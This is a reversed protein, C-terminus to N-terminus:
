KDLSERKKEEIGLDIEKFNKIQNQLGDIRDKFKILRTRLEDTDKKRAIREANLGSELKKIEKNRYIIEKLLNSYFLAETKLRRKVFKKDDEIAIFYELAKKYNRQQNEPHIYLLGLQFLAKNELSKPLSKPFLSLAKETEDISAKYDGKEMLKAANALYKERQGAKNPYFSSFLACGTFVFILILCCAIHFFVHQGKWTRKSGM